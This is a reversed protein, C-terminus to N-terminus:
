RAPAPGGAAGTGGQEGGQQEQLQIMAESGQDMLAQVEEENRMLKQPIGKIRGVERLAAHIDLALGAKPDIEGFSAVVQAYELINQEEQAWQARALDSVFVANVNYGDLQLEPPVLDRKGLENVILRLIPTLLEYQLRAITAGLEQAVIRSRERIETASKPTKELPGFQDALFIQRISATLSEMSWQGIDFHSASQLPAISQENPSNSAVPIMAGPELSIVWPNIVGDDVVTYVGSVALAANKLSLEKLKNLARVDGLARLGPGRGYPTGPLKSWRTGFMRPFANVEQELITKREKLRILFQWQGDADRANFMQVEHRPNDPDNENESVWNSDLSDPWSRIIDRFSMFVKRAVASIKGENDEEFACETVPLCKFNIGDEKPWASIVASGGVIRDLVAPQMEHYFNSDQLVHHVLDEVYELMPRIHEIQGDDRINAGPELRFWKKWPPVLGTIILNTLQEAADIATSDFVHEGVSAPTKEHPKTFFMAREPAIYDYVTQWLPVWQQRNTFMQEIRKDLSRNYDNM